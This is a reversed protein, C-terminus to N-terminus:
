SQENGGRRPGREKSRRRMFVCRHVATGPQEVSGKSYTHRGGVALRETCGSPHVARCNRGRPWCANGPSAAGGALGAVFDKIRRSEASRAIPGAIARLPSFGCGFPAEHGKGRRRGM